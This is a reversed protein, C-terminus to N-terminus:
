RIFPLQVDREANRQYRYKFGKPVLFEFLQGQVRASVHAQHQTRPTSATGTTRRTDWRQSGPQFPSARQSLGAPETSPRDSADRESTLM